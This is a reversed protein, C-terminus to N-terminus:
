HLNFLVAFTAYLLLNHVAAIGSVGGVWIVGVTYGMYTHCYGEASRRVVMGAGIDRHVCGDNRILLAAEWCHFVYVGDRSREEDVRTILQM